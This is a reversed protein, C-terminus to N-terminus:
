KITNEMENRIGNVKYSYRDQSDRWRSGSGARRGRDTSDTDKRIRERLDKRKLQNEKNGDDEEADVSISLLMRKQEFEKDEVKRRM